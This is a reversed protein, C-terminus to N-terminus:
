FLKPLIKIALIGLGVKLLLSGASSILESGAQYWEPYDQILDKEQITLLGQERLAELDYFGVEHATYYAVGAQDYFMWYIKSRGARPTLYSYVIGVNQGAPISNVVEAQDFAARKIPIEKRAVLTLGVVDNISYM